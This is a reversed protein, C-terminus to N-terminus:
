HRSPEQGHYNDKVQVPAADQYAGEITNPILRNNFYTMLYDQEKDKSVFLVVVFALALPAALLIPVHTPHGMLRFLSQIFLPILFGGLIAVVWEFKTLKLFTPEPTHLPTIKM